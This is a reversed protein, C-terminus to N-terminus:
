GLRRLAFIGGGGIKGGVGVGWGRRLRPGAATGLNKRIIQDAPCLGDWPKDDGDDDRVLSLQLGPTQM